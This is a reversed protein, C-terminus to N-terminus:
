RDGMGRRLEDLTLPVADTPVEVRFVEDGLAVNIQVDSLRVTLDTAPTTGSAITRLHVSGPRGSGADYGGYQITVPGRSAAAVRWRQDVRRLYIVTDGADAAVWGNPYTRGEGPAGSTLGCGSLVERLEAGDLPVGALAEVIQEPRAGRLVRNERPLYLTADADSAALVFAARGFAMPPFLELRIRSPAALGTDIRGALRHGGTRGSLALSVAMSRVGRCEATAEDLASAFGPFASGPGTPLAVRRAACGSALCAAVIVAGALRSRRTM